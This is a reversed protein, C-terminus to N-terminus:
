LTGALSLKVGRRSGFTSCISAIRGGKCFSALIPCGQSISRLSLM